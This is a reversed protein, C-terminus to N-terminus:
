RSPDSNALQSNKTHVQVQPYPITIGAEDFALKINETLALKTAFYDGAKTWARVTLNVSNDALELVGVLTPNDELVREENALVSEIVHKATALNDEYSIRIVLDIRRTERASWNTITDAYIAGNPVTIERNDPTLLTTTFLSIKEVSGGSGAVEVYDGTRFPRSVILMIGAAFNGLSDKLALGVAIGAAGLLAILSTTDVGLRDVAAIIVVLTLLTNTITASFNVLIEELGSRQLLRRTLGSIANAVLRGVVLIVVALIINVGLDWLYDGTLRQLDILTEM